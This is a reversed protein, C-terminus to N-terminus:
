KKMEKGRHFLDDFFQMWELKYQDDLAIWALAVVVLVAIAAEITSM